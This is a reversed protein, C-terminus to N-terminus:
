ADKKVGDRRTGVVIFDNASHRKSDSHSRYESQLWNIFTSNGQLPYKAGLRALSTYIDGPFNDLAAHDKISNFFTKFLWEPMKTWSSAHFYLSWAVLAVPHANRLEQCMQPVHNRSGSPGVPQEPLEGNFVFIVVLNEALVAEAVDFNHIRGLEPVFGEAYLDQMPELMTSDRSVAEALIESQVENVPIALDNLTRWVDFVQERPFQLSGRLFPRLKEFEGSLLDIERLLSQYAMQTAQDM